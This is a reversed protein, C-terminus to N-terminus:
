QSLLVTCAAHLRQALVRAVLCSGQLSSDRGGAEDAWAQQMYRLIWELACVDLSLM